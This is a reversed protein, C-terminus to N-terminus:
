TNLMTNRLLQQHKVADAGTADLQGALGVLLDRAESRKNQELLIEACTLGARVALTTAGQSSALAIAQRCLLEAGNPDRHPEMLLVQSMIRRSESQWVNYKSTATQLTHNLSRLANEKEGLRIYIEALKLHFIQLGIVDSSRSQRTLISTLNGAATRWESETGDAARAWVSMLEGLAVFYPYRHADAVTKLEESLAGLAVHDNMLLHMKCAFLLTLAYGFANASNGASARYRELVEGILAHGEPSRSRFALMYALYIRSFTWLDIGPYLHPAGATHAETLRVCQELHTCADVYSSQQAKVMGAAMHAYANLAPPASAVRSLLSSVYKEARDLNGVILYHFMLGFEAGTLMEANGLEASLLRAREFLPGVAPFAYSHVAALANARQMTLELELENGGPSAPLQGLDLLADGLLNAADAQAGRAFAAEAGRRRAAIAEPFARALSYHRAITEDPISRDHERENDLWAAFMRHFVQRRRRLLSNYAANQILAHRFRFRAEPRAGASTVLRATLLRDISRAIRNEDGPVLAALERITFVRGIISALQAIEKAAGVQDLRATLAGQLTSPIEWAAASQPGHEAVPGAGLVGRTVEEIFLPVGDTRRAITDIVAEPLAVPSIAAILARTATASLPLLDLLTVHPRQLWPMQDIGATRANEQNRDGIRETVVIAVRKTACWDALQTVLTISTADLWQVDEVILLLPRTAAIAEVLRLMADLVAFNRDRAIAPLPPWAPDPEIDLLVALASLTDHPAECGIDEVMDALRQRLRSDTQGHPIGALRRILASIPYLSSNSSQPSGQIELLTAGQAGSDVQEGTAAIERLTAALRSKGLGTEGRVVLMQGQGGVAKQWIRALVECEASRGILPTERERLASFRSLVTREGTVKWARTGSPFGKLELAGLDRCTFLEGVLLRTENAIVVEGPSAISQLRVALAPTDGAIIHEDAGSGSRVIDGIVVLGTAIGTRMALPAGGVDLSAVARLMHLSARVAREADDEAAAPFGFYALIGDGLYQAIRGNAAEVVDTAMRHFTALVDKYDEPDLRTALATSGVLDCFM